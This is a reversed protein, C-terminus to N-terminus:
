WPPLGRNCMCGLLLFGGVECDGHFVPQCHSSTEVPVSSSLLSAGAPCLETASGGPPPIRVAVSGGPLLDGRQEGCQWLRWLPGWSREM